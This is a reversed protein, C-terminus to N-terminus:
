VAPANVGGPSEFLTITGEAVLTGERQLRANFLYFPNLDKVLTVRIDVPGPEVDPSCFKFDRAAVLFGTKPPEGKRAQDIGQYAAVSQAAAEIFLFPSPEGVPLVARVNMGNEMVELVRDLLLAPPRHPVLQNLNWDAM